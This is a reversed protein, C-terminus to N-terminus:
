QLQVIFCALVVFNCFCHATKRLNEGLFSQALEVLQIPSKKLFIM